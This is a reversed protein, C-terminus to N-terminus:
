KQEWIKKFYRKFDKRGMDKRTITIIRSSKFLMIKSLGANTEFAKTVNSMVYGTNQNGVIDAIITRSQTAGKALLHDLSNKGDLRKGEAYILRGNKRLIYDASTVGHPNPMLYVDYGQKTLKRALALNRPMENQALAKDFNGMNIGYISGKASSHYELKAFAPNAVQERMLAVHEANTAAANYREFWSLPNGAGLGVRDAIIGGKFKTQSQTLVHSLVECNPHANDIRWLRIGGGVYMKNDHCYKAFDTITSGRQPDYFLLSGDSRRHLTIVHGGAVTSNEWGFGIDYRGCAKTSKDLNRLLRDLSPGGVRHRTTVGNFTESEIKYASIHSENLLMGKSDLWATSPAKSLEYLASGKTNPLASVNFGRLRMEYAAVTSQCNLRYAESEFYHPNGRLHDAEDFTMPRGRKIGLAREIQLYSAINAEKQAATLDTPEWRMWYDHKIRDIDAPTRAAHREAAIEKPSRLPAPNILRQNDRIFYPLISATALRPENDALWGTFATPLSTVANASAPLPEQGDLIRGTDRAMEDKTKLIPVANCRCQPHWGTFKFTKPYRGALEDCIDELPHNGSTRVQIGVVFDLQQWRLHDATRYAINNETRTLRLANKYSSRYVGRGPHYAAAARSLQLNGYKDRVRRFLMDPHQLCHRVDRTMAAASMGQSIGHDLASEIESKFQQTYKWVRESLDMGAEKRQLFANLASANNNLYRRRVAEPLRSLDAGFTQAVLSDNNGNALQWSATIGNGITNSLNHSLRRTMADIQAKTKPYDAFAFPRSPDAMHLTAGLTAAEAAAQNFIAEVQRQLRAIHRRLSTDDFIAM